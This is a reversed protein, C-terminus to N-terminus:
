FWRGIATLNVSVTARGAALYAAFDCSTTTDNTRIMAVLMETAGTRATATVIPTASFAIPFTWTVDASNSATHRRTCIMTGDAYKVYEGAANSGREIISGTPIGSAQSVTGLINHNHYIEVWANWTNTNFDKQRFFIRPAGSGQRNEIFWQSDLTSSHSSNAFVVGSAATPKNSASSSVSVWGGPPVDTNIDITQQSSLLAGLGFAGVQMLNTASEGVDRAAASGLYKVWSTGEWRVSFAEDVLWFVQGIIPTIFFWAGGLWVAIEDEHGAWAGTAIAAPIYADGETPSGPPATLDRDLVTGRAIVGLIKLNQDMGGNWNDEGFDWGYQVGIGPITTSPM